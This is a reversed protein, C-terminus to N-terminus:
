VGNQKFNEHLKAPDLQQTTEKVEFPWKDKPRTERGEGHEFKCVFRLCEGTERSAFVTIVDGTYVRGCLQYGADNADKLKFGNVWIGVSSRTTLVTHLQPMTTWDRGEKEWKEIGLAHHFICVAKKPIRVDKRDPYPLTNTPDRGWTEQRSNLRWFVPRFSDTSSILMGLKGPSALLEMPVQHPLVPEMPDYLRSHSRTRLRSPTTPDMTKQLPTISGDDIHEDDHAGDLAAQAAAEAIFDRGSAKSAYELNHTSPDYPDYYSSPGLDLVIQRSFKTPKPKPTAQDSGNIGHSGGNSAKPTGPSPRVKGNGEFEPETSIGSELSAMNVDRMMSEAGGLSQGLDMEEYSYNPDSTLQRDPLSIGNSHQPDDMPSDTSTTNRHQLGGVDLARKAHEGLVGSSELASGGIEGFLRGAKQQLRPSRRLPRPEDTGESFEDPSSRMTDQGRMQNRPVLKDPKVRKSARPDLFDLDGSDFKVDEYDDNSAEAGAGVNGDELSLQSFVRAEAEDVGDEEEAISELDGENDSGSDPDDRLTSFWHHRLCQKEDPRLSPDTNLMQFLLDTAGDSVAKNKLPSVDLPTRMIQDFMKKGTKDTKGEFPPKGCLAFWLVAAFSWIDVSQSYAHFDGQGNKGRRRKMGRKATHEDYHPFVEPACYLLTGCFTKLFTENNKVVKSLGFDSLKVVWPNTSAILINDPKIDRHTIKKRHLYRLAKLTQHAMLRAAPEELPGFQQLYGQLDGYPVYEMIIYLHAGEDRYDIYRVINPHCLDKMIQMENDLRQDLRGDKIFRKKELEKAAYIQGEMKTALKFVTAFAGKGLLGVINYVEGGSWHMGFPNNNSGVLAVSTKTVGTTLVRHADGAAKTFGRQKRLQADAVDMRNRFAQFNQLYASEFGDRTPIRVIFKIIDEPRPSPIQIVAGHTLMRTAAIKSGKGRLHVEDVLTGNTSMDELMVIGAHNVYIRFHLNSVRKVTDADLVIDCSRPNRGFTFGLVPQVVASSFRLALDQAGGSMDKSLIFTEHEERLHKPLQDSYTALAGNHLVHQPTNKATLSVIHIAAHSSPHLICMVDAIDNDNLSSNNRGLRRPDLVQQTNPQTAEDDMLSAVVLSDFISIISSHNATSMADDQLSAEM